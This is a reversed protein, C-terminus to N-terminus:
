PSERLMRLFEAPTRVIVGLQEAGVFDRRNHTVIMANCQVAVELIREDDPDRLHPRQRLVFPVLSSISFLYDLFDDIAKESIGRIMDKRKLVDEYELALAVSVNLRWDAEGLSRVLEYSAGRKSRFAAVLVNTDLVIERIM